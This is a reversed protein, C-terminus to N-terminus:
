ELGVRIGAARLDHADSKIRAMGYKKVGPMPPFLDTRLKKCYLSASESPRTFNEAGLVSDGFGCVENFQCLWEERALAETGGKVRRTMKRAPMDKCKHQFADHLLAFVARLYPAGYEWLVKDPNHEIFGGETKIIEKALATVRERDLSAMWSPVTDRPVSEDDDREPQKLPAKGAPRVTLELDEPRIIGDFCHGLGREIANDLERVNGEWAHNQMAEYTEEAFRHSGGPDRRSLLKESLPRISWPRERLPPIYIVHQELRDLLDPKFKGQEAMEELPRNTAAIVRVDSATILDKGGVRTFEKSSLVRLLTAQVSDKLEGIEDLFLTGGKAREFAGAKDATAGTFSGKVYGFLESEILSEPISGCNVPIFPARGETASLHLMSAFVEKGVGREGRLLVTSGPRRLAGCLAAICPIFDHPDFFADKPQKLLQKVEDIYRDERITHQSLEDRLAQNESSLKVNIEDRQQKAVAAVILGAVCRRVAPSEKMLDQKDLFMLVNGQAQGLMEAPDAARSENTAVITFVAPNSAHIRQSLVLAGYNRGTTKGLDGANKGFLNDVIAVVYPSYDVSEARRSCFLDFVIVVEAHPRIAAGELEECEDKLDGEMSDADCNQYRIGWTPRMLTLEHGIRSLWYFAMDDWAFVRYERM